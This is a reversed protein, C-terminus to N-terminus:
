IKFKKLESCKSYEANVKVLTLENVTCWLDINMAEFEKRAQQYRGADLTWFLWHDVTKELQSFHVEFPNWLSLVESIHKELAERGISEPVPFVFTLHERLLAAYPEYTFRFAHFGEHEYNPFYVLALYM